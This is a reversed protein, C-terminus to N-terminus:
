DILLSLPAYIVDEAGQKKYSGIVKLDMHLFTTVNNKRDFSVKGFAVRITDSLEIGKEILLSSPVICSYAKPDTSPVALISEDYGELFNLSVDKAYFFDPASYIDNTATFDYGRLIEEMMVEFVFDNQPVYLPSLNLDTGDALKTIGVYYYPESLSVNLSDVQGSRYLNAVDYGDLVLNGVQKGNIDTYYGRITTSDYISELQEQYRLSTTALQGFFVVVTIALVPVVLSRVGGRVISLWAYKLSGGKLHSTRHEKKPGAPMKESPKNHIFTSIVFGMCALVALLFVVGAVALFFGMNLQPAFELTKSITLNGNSYRSDILTFKHAAKVVWAIIGDHLLYGAVAGALTALFAISGASFLFYGCVKKRSTGLMLMTESTERQRYVFLFGFLIMVALEVLGCVSTVIKAVRLITNYPIAVTSYGQDYITLQFRDGLQPQVRALFGAADENRIVTQGVTYGVPFQSAPVGAARPVYVYWSKDKVTNTIGVVKFNGTFGFGDEAWYSNYIGPQDSVSVSLEVTDGVGVGLRAAMLEPIVIVQEGNAYEEETFTRGEVFYLEQQQFPLIAMLDNTSEVLVSNNTVKLTEAVKLFPSDEPIQYFKGDKGDTTIDVMSPIEFGDQKAIENPFTALSLHPMPSRTRYVKGFVLYYHDKEFDGFEGDILILSNDESKFSYIADVVNAIYIGNDEIYNANGVVLVSLLHDPSYTDTRYFGDIYGMSRFQEEWLLTSNNSSIEDANFNTLAEAMNADFLVDDPYNTGMYEVLGITTYFDDCDDLFQEVSAWVSIGLALSLTLTFILLTFLATKGKSRALSLLSNRFIM